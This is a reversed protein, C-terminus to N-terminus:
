PSEIRKWDKPLSKMLSERQIPPEPNIKRDFFDVTTERHNIFELWLQRVQYKKRDLVIRGRQFDKRDKKNRPAFDLYSYNRDEKAMRVDFRPTLERAQPGFAMWYFMKEWFDLSRGLFTANDIRLGNGQNTAPTKPALLIQETKEKFDFLHLRQSELLWVKTLKRGDKDREDVRWLDPKKVFAQGKTITTEDWIIDKETRTFRVQMERVNKDADAWRRLVKEVPTEDKKEKGPRAAEPKVEPAATQRSPIEDAPQLTGGVLVTATLATGALTLALVAISKTWVMMKGRARALTLVSTSVIGAPLADQAALL